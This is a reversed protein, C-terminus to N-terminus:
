LAGELSDLLEKTGVIETIRVGFNDGIVVVDGHALLQGNVIIDVPAGAQKELELVTGQSFEAIDKIKRKTKGIEVSVDLPVNMLLSMNSSSMARTIADQESFDPFQAKKITVSDPVASGVGPQVYGQPGYMQPIQPVQPPMYQPPYFPQQYYPPMGQPPYQPAQSPYAPQQQPAPAQAPPMAPAAPQPAPAAALAEPVAPVKPISPQPVTVAAPAPEAAVSSVPVEQQEAPVEEQGDMLRSVLSKALNLPLVSVFNTNMIGNIMLDFSISVVEVNDQINSFDREFPHDKDLLCAEPTTINVPTELIDALATAASGMMQNMVECAASMSMDDFVFEEDPQVDENGMLLNLIIQMDHSRFMMLNAGELGEVYGIKVLIAPEMDSYNVNEFEQLELHPTTIVVQKDLMNSIATAAAGMSINMVEGLADMEETTIPANDRVNANQSEM